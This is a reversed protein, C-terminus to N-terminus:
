EIRRRKTRDEEGDEQFTREEKKGDRATYTFKGVKKGEKWEGGAASAYSSSVATLQVTGRGHLKGNVVDGDYVAQLRTSCETHTKDM